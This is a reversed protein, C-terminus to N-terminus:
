PVNIKYCNTVSYRGSILKFLEGSYIGPHCGLDAVHNVENSSGRTVRGSVGGSDRWTARSRTVTHGPMDDRRSPKGNFM